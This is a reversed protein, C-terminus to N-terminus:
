TVRPDGTVQSVAENLLREAVRLADQRERLRGRLAEQGALRNKLMREVEVPAPGGTRARINVNEVPDLAKKVAESTLGLPNGYLDLALEDIMEVTVSNARKGERHVKAVLRSVLVYSEHFSLDSQRVIVDALETMTAFGERAKRLMVDAKVALEALIEALFPAMIVLKETAEFIQSDIYGPERGNATPLAKLIGFASNVANHVRVSEARIMELGVPNKKQPMISSIDCHRDALEIMGFDPTNWLLLSEVLRGMTSFAIAAATGTQMLFDRGGTADLSNEVIGHCGILEAVRERDIPFGTTALACGGMPSRNVVRYAQELRVVDRDFADSHALLFHAFTIPQAAQSHHTYGPMVTHTHQRARELLVDMLGLLSEISSGILDRCYLRAETLDFDNRSLAVHLWGGVRGGLREMLQMQLTLYIDGLDPRLPFADFGSEEIRVLERLIADADPMAVIGTEALMVGHAKFLMLDIPFLKRSALLKPRAYYEQIAPAARESLRESYAEGSTM